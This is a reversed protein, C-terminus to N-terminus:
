KLKAAAREKKQRAGAAAMKERFLGDTGCVYDWFIGGQGYNGKNAVHHFDHFITYGSHTLSFWESLFCGDFCYGSHAEFTELLRAVVWVGFILPNVPVFLILFILPLAASFFSEAPHAYEAAISISGIYKHHKKHITRYLFPVEHLLRHCWYFGTENIFFCGAIFAATPLLAIPECVHEIRYPANIAVLAAMALPGTIFEVVYSKYNDARLAADPVIQPPRPIKYHSLWDYHELLGYFTHCVLATIMRGLSVFLIFHFAPSYDRLFDITFVGVSAEGGGHIGFIMEYLSFPGFPNGGFVSSLFSDALLPPTANSADIYGITPAVGSFDCALTHQLVIGIAAVTLPTRTFALLLRRLFHATTQPYATEYNIRPMNEFGVTEKKLPTTLETPTQSSSASPPM